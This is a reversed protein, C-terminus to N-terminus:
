FVLEVTNGFMCRAREIAEERARENCLSESVLLYEIGEVKVVIDHRRCDEDSVNVYEVQHKM